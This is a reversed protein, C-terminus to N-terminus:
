FSTNKIEEKYKNWLYIMGSVSVIIMIISIIQAQTLNFFSEYRDTVRITEIFFREIGNLLFVVSIIFGPAKTFKKRISWAIAFIVLMMVFEYISTPWVGNVLEYCYDGGCGSINEAVCGPIEKGENIVNYAYKNSWFYEPIWSPAKSLNEIGWDGDGSFHCGLRGIGYALAYPAAVADVFSFPNIKLKKTYWIMGLTGFFLGGYISLGSFLSAPNTFIETIEKVISSGPQFAEFINSGLVGTIAAVAVITGVQQHPYIIETKKIPTELANKNIDWYSYAAYAIGFIIGALKNGQLSFLFSLAQSQCTIVSTGNEIVGGIKLGIFFGIILPILIDVISPKNGIIVETKTGSFIGLKQKRQLEKSLFYASILFGMAVFFGYTNIPFRPIETGILANILDPITAYARLLM